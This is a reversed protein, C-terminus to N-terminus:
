ASRMRGPAEPNAEPLLMDVNRELLEGKPYDLLREAASNAQRLAGAKDAMLMAVPAHAFLSRFRETAESLEKTRADVRQELRERAQELKALTLKHAAVEKALDANALQLEQPSPIALAKPILPFILVATTVSIAATIAKVVGQVEYIPWWLTVLNILHTMGCWLMFAAFLQALVKMEVNPRKSVFMWIAVPIAFYAAFILFDSAAHLGVLWPKWLLCYGHAMYSASDIM